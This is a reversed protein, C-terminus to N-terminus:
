KEFKYAHVTRAPTWGKKEIYRKALEFVRATKVKTYYLKKAVYAIM